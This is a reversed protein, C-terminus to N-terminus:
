CLCVRPTLTPFCVIHTTNHFKHETEPNTDLHGACVIHELEPRAVLRLAAGDLEYVWPLHGLHALAVREHELAGSAEDDEHGWLGVNLEPPVSVPLRPRSTSLTLLLQPDAESAPKVELALVSVQLGSAGVGLSSTGAAKLCLFVQYWHFSTM